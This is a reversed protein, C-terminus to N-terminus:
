FSDCIWLFYFFLRQYGIGDINKHWSQITSTSIQYEVALQRYTYSDELKKLIMERYDKSYAM